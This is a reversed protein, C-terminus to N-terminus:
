ERREHDRLFADMRDVMLMPEKAVSDGPDRVERVAPSPAPVGLALASETATERFGSSGTKRRRQDDANRPGTIRGPSTANSDARRTQFRATSRRGAAITRHALVSSMM